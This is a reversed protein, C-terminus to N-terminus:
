DVGELEALRRRLWAQADSRQIGQVADLAAGLTRVLGQEIAAAMDRYLSREADDGGASPAELLSRIRHAALSVDVIQQILDSVATVPAVPTDPVDARGAERPEAEESVERCYV